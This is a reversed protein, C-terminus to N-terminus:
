AIPPSRSRLIISKAIPNAISFFEFPEFTYEIPALAFTEGLLAPAHSLVCVECVDGQHTHNLEHVVGVVVSLIFLLAFFRKFRQM